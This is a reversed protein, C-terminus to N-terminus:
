RGALESSEFLAPPNFLAGSSSDWFHPSVVCLQLGPCPTVTVPYLRQCPRYVLGEGQAWSDYAGLLYASPHLLSAFCLLQIGGVGCRILGLPLSIDWYVGHFTKPILSSRQSLHSGLSPWPGWLSRPFAKSELSVGPLVKTVM